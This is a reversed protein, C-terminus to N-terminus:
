VGTEIWALDDAQLTGERFLGSYIGLWGLGPLPFSVPLSVPPAIVPLSVSWLPVVEVAPSTLIGYTLWACEQDAGLTFTLDLTGIQYAGELDLTFGPSGAGYDGSWRPELKFDGYTFHLIGTVSAYTGGLAPEHRHFLDDVRLAGDVVFEGFDYPLDPNTDTVTVEPVRVLVGEYQEALSGGTGIAAAVAIEEVPVTLGSGTREVRDAVIRTLGYDEETRGRLTLEDGAALDAPALGLPDYVLVGSWPGGGPAEVFLERAGRPVVATVVVGEVQVLTGAAPHDPHTVDQVAYVTTLAVNCVDPLFDECSRPELKFDGYTYHLLGTVTDFTEGMVAGHLYLLDDVRLVGDVQFEGYGLSPHTVEVDAVQVLVGEYAEALAGGTAIEAPSLLVPEPPAAGRATRGVAEAALETVGYYEQVVGQVTVRDGPVLDEPAVGDPDYVYVGSWPGGEAAEVFLFYGERPAATVVADAVIATSGAPLHAPHSPDQIAQITSIERPTDDCPYTDVGGASNTVSFTLGDTVVRVTGNVLDGCGPPPAQCGPSVPSGAETQYITSGVACLRDYIECRPLLAATSATSCVSVTPRLNALFGPHSSTLSGHHNVKYVEIPGIGHAPDLLVAGLSPEVDTTLDGAILVDFDGHSIVVGVSRGNEDVPDEFHGDLLFGNMSVCTLSVGGGLDLGQATLDGLELTRRSTPVAALYEDFQVHPFLGGRDFAIDPEGLAAFVGDFGGVHDPHYHTALAYDIRSVGLEAALALIQAANWDYGSDVLLTKRLGSGAPDEPARVLTADAQGVAVHYIELDAPGALASGAALLVASLLMLRMPRIM